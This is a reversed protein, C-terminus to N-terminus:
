SIYSEVLPKLFSVAVASTRNEKRLHDVCMMCLQEWM